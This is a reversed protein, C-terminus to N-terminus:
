AEIPPHLMLEARRWATSQAHATIAEAAAFGSQLTRRDIMGVRYAEEWRRRARRYRARRRRSLRLADPLVRFGLFSVGLRSRQVGVRAHAHLSLREELFEVAADRGALAEAKSRTWFLVDDMYRVMAAAGLRELLFRDFPALYLNAFHQSTLAGIPVGKGPAAEHAAIVRQCLKLLRRNRFRRALAENLLGHDISAFYSRVDLKVYWPHRHLHHQARVVAALSGKGARCAFSDAVHSRELVPEMPGIMAHHLVRERFCPAHILRPKPDFVQFSTFQGVPVNGDRIAAGLVALERDLNAEFRQVEPRERKGRAARHFAAALNEWATVEALGVPSRAAM